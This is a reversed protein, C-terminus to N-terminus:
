RTATPASDALQHTDLDLAFSDALIPAAAESNSGAAVTFYEGLLKTKSVTIRMFGHHMDDYRELTAERDQTAAPVNRPAGNPYHFLNFYGGTGLVLYPINHTALKRTFRMYIHSEASLVIDPTRGSAAIADDLVKGMPRKPNQGRSATMSFIAYPSHHTTVILAKDRPATKLETVLWAKQEDDVAGGDVINTYLGIITAYPTELTWYSNPQTMAKRAVGGAEPTRTPSPSCFNAMFAILSPQRNPTGDHNGPIAFIPADYQAYPHYFQDYYNSADGDYYTLNGLLYLFAPKPTNASNLQGVLASAVSAQPGPNKVGGTDGTVQFVLQGANQIDNLAAEGIIQSLPLHYPKAGTAPPLPQFSNLRDVQNQLTELQQNQSQTQLVLADLKAKQDLMAQAADDLEAYKSRLQTSETQLATIDANSADVQKKLQAAQQKADDVSTQLEKKAGDRMVTIDSKLSFFTQLGLYGATAALIAFIVAIIKGWDVLRNVVKETVDFEVIRQDKM